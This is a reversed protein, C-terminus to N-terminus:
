AVNRSEPTFRDHSTYTIFLGEGGALVLATEEDGFKRVKREDGAVRGVAAVLQHSQIIADIHPIGAVAM